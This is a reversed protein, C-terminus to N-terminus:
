AGPLKEGATERILSVVASEWYFGAARCGLRSAQNIASHHVGFARAADSQSPWERLQNGEEDLQIVARGLALGIKTKASEPM